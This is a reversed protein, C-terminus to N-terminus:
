NSKIKYFDSAITKQVVVVRSVTELTCVAFCQLFAHCCREGVHWLRHCHRGAVIVVRRWRGRWRRIRRTLMVRRSPAAAAAAPTDHITVRCGHRRRYCGCRCCRCRCGCLLQGFQGLELDIQLVLLVHVLLHILRQAHRQGNEEVIPDLEVRRQKLSEKVGLGLKM